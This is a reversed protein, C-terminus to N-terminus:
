EIVEARTGLDDPEGDDHRYNDMIKATAPNFQGEETGHLCWWIARTLEEDDPAKITGHARDTIGNKYAELLVAKFRASQENTLM